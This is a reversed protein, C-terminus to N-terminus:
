YFFSRSSADLVKLVLHGKCPNITWIGYQFLPIHTLGSNTTSADVYSKERRKTYVHPYVYICVYVRAHMCAHMRAHM